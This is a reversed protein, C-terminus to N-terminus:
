NGSPFFHIEQGKIDSKFNTVAPPNRSIFYRIAFIILGM